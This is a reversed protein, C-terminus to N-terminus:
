LLPLNQKTQKKKRYQSPSIKEYKSFFKSFSLVDDFGVSIAIDTISINTETLLNKAHFLKRSSLYDKPSLGYHSKFLKYLYGQSIGLIETLEEITIKHYINTEIYETSVTLYDKTGNSKISKQHTNYLHLFWELLVSSSLAQKHNRQIKLALNEAVQIDTFDFINTNSVTQYTQFIKAMNEDKSLIWVFEWPDNKDPYYHEFSYPSILFGQGKKLPTGNFFGKGKIVYHIIYYPRITSPGFRASTIDNCYGLQTIELPSSGIPFVFYIM